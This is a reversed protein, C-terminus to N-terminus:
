YEESNKAEKMKRKKAMDMQREKKSVVRVRETEKKQKKKEHLRLSQNKLEFEIADHIGTNETMQSAFHHRTVKRIADVICVKRAGEITVSQDALMIEETLENTDFFEIIKAVQTRITKQDQKKDVKEELNEIKNRYKAAFHRSDANYQEKLEDSFEEVEKICEYIIPILDLAACLIISKKSELAVDLADALNQALKGVAVTSSLISLLLATANILAVVVEPEFKVTRKKKNAILELIRALVSECREANPLSFGTVFAIAFARATQDGTLAPLNPMLENLFSFAAEQMLDYTNLALNCMVLLAEDHEQRSVPETIPQLLSDFIPQIHPELDEGIYTDSLIENMSKLAALRIENRPSAAKEACIPLDTEWHDATKIVQSQDDIAHDQATIKYQRSRGFGAIDM